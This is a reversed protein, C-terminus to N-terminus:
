KDDMFEIQYELKKRSFIHSLVNIKKAEFSALECKGEKRRSMQKSHNVFSKKGNGKHM